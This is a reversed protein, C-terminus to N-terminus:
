SPGDDGPRDREYSDRLADPLVELVADLADQGVAASASIIGGTAALTAEDETLGLETATERAADFIASVMEAPVSGSQLAGEM